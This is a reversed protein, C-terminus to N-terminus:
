EAYNRWYLYCKLTQGKHWEEEVPFDKFVEKLYATLDSLEKAMSLGM